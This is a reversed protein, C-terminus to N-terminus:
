GAERTGFGARVAMVVAELQSHAGLKALVNKVYGRVTSVKLGMQAAITTPDLGQTLHELTEVERPALSAFM